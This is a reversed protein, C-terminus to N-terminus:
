QQQISRLTRCKKQVTKVNAASLFDGPSVENPYRVEAGLMNFVVESLHFVISHLQYGFTNPMLLIATCHMRHRFYQFACM